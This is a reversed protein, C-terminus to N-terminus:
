ESELKDEQKETDPEEGIIIRKYRELKRAKKEEELQRELIEDAKSINGTRIAFQLADLEEAKKLKEFREGIRRMETAPDQGKNIEDWFIMKKFFEDDM